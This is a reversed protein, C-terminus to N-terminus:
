LVQRGAHLTNDVFELRQPNLNVEGEETRSISESQPRSTRNWNQLSSALIKKRRKCQAALSNQWSYYTCLNSTSRRFENLISKNSRNNLYEVKNDYASSDILKFVTIIQYM